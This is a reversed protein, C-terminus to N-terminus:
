ERPPISADRLALERVLETQLRECRSIKGYLLLVAFIGAVISLYVLLDTGRGVGVSQAIVTTADPFLVAAVAILFFLVAILRDRLRSRFYILYLALFAFLSLLIIQILTM